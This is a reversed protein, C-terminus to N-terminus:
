VICTNRDNKYFVHGIENIKPDFKLGDVRIVTIFTMFM